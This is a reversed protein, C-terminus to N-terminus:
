QGPIGPHAALDLLALGGFPGQVILEFEHAGQEVTRRMRHVHTIAAAQQLTTVVTIQFRYFRLKM